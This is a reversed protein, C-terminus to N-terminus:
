LPLVTIDTYRYKYIVTGKQRDGSTGNYVSNGTTPPLVKKVSYLRVVAALRYSRYAAFSSSIKWKKQFYDYNSFISPDM